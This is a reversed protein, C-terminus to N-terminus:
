KLHSIDKLTGDQAEYFAALDEIDQDNLTQVFGTMIANDRAGSEYDHLAKVLYDAYQGALLPYQPDLPKGDKDVGNGTAGHCAQCPQAKKGGAEADGKAFAPAAALLLAFAATAAGTAFRRPATM